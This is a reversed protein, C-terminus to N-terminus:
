TKPRNRKAEAHSVTTRRAGRLAAVSRETAGEVWRGEILVTKPIAPVGRENANLQTIILDVAAAGVAEHCFDVGPGAIDHTSRDLTIVPLTRITRKAGALWPRLDHPTVLLDIKTEEVWALFREATWDREVPLFSPVRDKSPLEQQAIYVGADYLHDARANAREPAAFGIRRAGAARAQAFALAVSHGHHVVARHLLPTRLSYAWTACAFGDWDLDLKGTGSPLPGVLVGRIGRSELIQTLRARRLADHDGAIEDIKWGLSEARARAGALFLRNARANLERAADRWRAVCAITGAHGAPKAGRVSTMLATVLPNPRYGLERAIEQIKRRTALQVRPHDRLAYSVTVLGYGARRSIDRLTPARVPVPAPM